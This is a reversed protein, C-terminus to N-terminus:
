RESFRQASRLATDNFAQARLWASITESLKVHYEFKSCSSLLYTCIRGNGGLVSKRVTESSVAKKASDVIWVTAISAKTGCQPPNHLEM